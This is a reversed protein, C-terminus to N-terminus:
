SPGCSKQFRISSWSSSGPSYIWGCTRAVFYALQRPGDLNMAAAVLEEPLYPSLSVLRQFLSVVNRAMAEVEVGEEEEEPIPLVTAKLYPQEETYELIRIRQLGQMVLRITGDPMKLLQHIKSLTGIEYM